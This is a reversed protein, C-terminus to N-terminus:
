GGIREVTGAAKAVKDLSRDDLRPSLVLRGGHTLSTLLAEIASLAALPQDLLQRDGGGGEAMALAALEARNFATGDPLLLAPEDQALRALPLSVAKLAQWAVQGEGGVRVTGGARLWPSFLRKMLSLQSSMPALVSLRCGLRGVLPSVREYVTALDLTVVADPRHREQWALLAASDQRPDMPLAVLGAYCAAFLASAAVPLNPLLLGLRNGPALGCALLGPGVSRAEELIQAPSWRRDLFELWPRQEGELSALLETLPDSM